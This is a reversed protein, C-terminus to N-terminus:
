AESAESTSAEAAAAEIEAVAEEEETAAKHESEAIAEVEAERADIREQRTKPETDEVESEDAPERGDILSLDPRVYGAQPHNVPLSKKPTEEATASGRAM